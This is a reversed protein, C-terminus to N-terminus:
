SVFSIINYPLIQSIAVTWNGHKADEGSSNGGWGTQM